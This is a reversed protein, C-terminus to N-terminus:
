AAKREQAADFEEIERGLIAIKQDSIQDLEEMLESMKAKFQIELAEKQQIIRSEQLALDTLTTM